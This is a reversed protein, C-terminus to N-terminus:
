PADIMQEWAATLVARDMQAVCTPAGLAMAAHLLAELAAAWDPVLAVTDDTDTFFAAAGVLARARETVAWNLVTFGAGIPSRMGAANLALTTSHDDGHYPSEPEVQSLWINWARSFAQHAANRAPALADVEACTLRQARDIVAVVQDGNAGFLEAVPRAHLVRVAVARTYRASAVPQVAAVELVEVDWLKGPWRAVILLQLVHDVVIWPPQDTPNRIIEGPAAHTMPTHEADAAFVFGKLPASTGIPTSDQLVRLDFATDAM